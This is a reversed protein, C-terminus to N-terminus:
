KDTVEQIIKLEKKAIKDWDYKEANDIADHSLNNYLNKNVLLKLVEEAFQEIKDMEVKIM